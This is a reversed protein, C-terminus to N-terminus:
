RDDASSLEPMDESLISIVKLTAPLARNSYIALAATWNFSEHRGDIFM